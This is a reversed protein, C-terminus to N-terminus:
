DSLSRIRCLYMPYPRSKPWTLFASIPRGAIFSLYRITIVASTVRCLAHAPSQMTSCVAALSRRLLWDLVHAPRIETSMNGLEFAGGKFPELDPQQKVFDLLRQMEPICTGEDAWVPPWLSPDELRPGAIPLAAALLEILPGIALPM